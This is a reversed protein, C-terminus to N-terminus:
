SGEGMRTGSQRLGGNEGATVLPSGSMRAVRSKADTRKLLWEVEERVEAFPIGTADSIDRVTVGPHRCIHQYITMMRDDRQTTAKTEVYDPKQPKAVKVAFLKRERSAVSKPSRGLVKAAARFGDKQGAYSRVIADEAPTYLRGLRM